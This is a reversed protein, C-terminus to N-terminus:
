DVGRVMLQHEKKQITTPTFGCRELIEFLRQIDDDSLLKEGGSEKHVECYVYECKESDLVSEIGRIVDLEAGEVDIKVLGPPSIENEDAYAEGHVVQINGIEDNRIRFIAGGGSSGVSKYENGLAVEHIEVSDSLGNLRLTRKLRLANGPHPEFAVVSGTLEGFIVSYLGHHAGVDWATSVHELDELMLAVTDAEDDLTSRFFTECGEPVQISFEGVDVEGVGEFQHLLHYYAVTVQAKAEAGLLVDLVSSARNSLAM